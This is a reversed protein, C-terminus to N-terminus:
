SAINGFKYKKYGWRLIYIFVVVIVFGSVIQLDSPLVVIWPISSVLIMLFWRKLTKVFGIKAIRSFGLAIILFIPWSSLWCVLFGYPLVSSIVAYLLVGGVLVLVIESILSTNAIKSVGIRHKAFYRGTIVLAILLVNVMLLKIELSFSTLFVLGVVAEACGGFLLSKAYSKPDLDSIFFVGTIILAGILFVILLTALAGLGIAPPLAVCAFLLGAALSVCGFFRVSVRKQV